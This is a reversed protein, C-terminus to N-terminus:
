KNGRSDKPAAYHEHGDKGGTVRATLLIRKGQWSPYHTIDQWQVAM